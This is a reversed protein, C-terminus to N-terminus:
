SNVNLQWIGFSLTGAYTVWLLYPVLLWAAAPRVRRFVIVTAVLTAWLAALEFFAVGLLQCRFFIPTWAANLVLQGIFLALPLRQKRFGGEQWVLWASVAMMAYLVTWVPGFVWDPPTWSPKDLNRYWAAKPSATTSAAPVMGVVAAAFCAAVCIALAMAKHRPSMGSM